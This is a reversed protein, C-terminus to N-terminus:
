RIFFRPTLKAYVPHPEPLGVREAEARVEDWAKAFEDPSALGHIMAVTKATQVYHTDMWLQDDYLGFQDETSDGVKEKQQQALTYFHWCAQARTDASLYGEPQTHNPYVPPSFVVELHGQILPRTPKDM